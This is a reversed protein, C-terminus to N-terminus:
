RVTAAYLLRSSQNVPAAQAYLQALVSRPASSVSASFQVASSQLLLLLVSFGFFLRLRSHIVRCISISGGRRLYLSLEAQAQSVIKLLQSRSLPCVCTENRNQRKLTVELRSRLLRKENGDPTGHRPGVSAIFQNVPADTQWRFVCLERTM